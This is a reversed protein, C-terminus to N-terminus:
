ETMLARAADYSRECTAGRARATDAIAALEGARTDARQQLDALLDIAATDPPCQGAAARAIAAQRHATIFDALERQMRKRAARARDAGADAAAIAASGATEIQQIQVRHEGEKQRYHESQLFAAKAASARETQLTAHAKAASTQADALRLTQVLLLAALAVAALQWLHAKLTAIM